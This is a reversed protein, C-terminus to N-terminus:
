QKIDIELQSAGPVQERKMTPTSVCCYNIELM